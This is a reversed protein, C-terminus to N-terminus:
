EPRGRRHSSRTEQSTMFELLCPRGEITQKRAREIAPGIQAPDTVRESWGGLARAIDAYNGGLDRTRYREHSLKMTTTEIAMSNNNMVITLIPADARVATEFDLGTMGFAADGMFNVCFKEPRALKAGIALGLGSGLQHSKGWGIYGGPTTAQYFPTLQDRPSGSDHTVIADAANVHRIFESVERYPTIPVESSQLIPNWKALWTENMAAIERARVPDRPKKGLRERVAQVLLDLGLAADGLLPIDIAYGRNFDRADNTLQIFKKGDPIPPNVIAHKTLSSGVAFYVDARPMFQYVSNRMTLGAAGLSLAHDEPFASKADITTMVPADLLEALAVLQKSAQAYLVGQGAHIMPCAAAVLMDAADEIDRTDPCSRAGRVPQYIVEDSGFDAEVVDSPVEVMVPGFRANRLNSFARRMVNVTESPLTIEEVSKTVSAYTRTSKFMGHTQSRARDQGLPLLLMPTSDSYASAIGPFANEAGPGFQMAFVAPCNAGGARAYGNAMDVGVREQRCLIPRIGAAAAAEIIPTTPFCFLKSVGERKLVEAIAQMVQM